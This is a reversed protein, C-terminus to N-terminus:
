GACAGAHISADFLWVGASRLHNGVVDRGVWLECAASASVFCRGCNAGAIDGFGRGVVRV